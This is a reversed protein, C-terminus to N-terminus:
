KISYISENRNELKVTIWEMSKPLAQLFSQQADLSLLSIFKYHIKDEYKEFNNANLGAFCSWLLLANKRDDINQIHLQKTFKGLSEKYELKIPLHYFDTRIRATVFYKYVMPLQTSLGLANMASTSALVYEAKKTSTITKIVEEPDVPIEGFRSVKPRYYTGKGVRKIVGESMLRVMEASVANANSILKKRDVLQEFTFVKGFRQHAVYQRVSHAINIRMVGGIETYLAYM